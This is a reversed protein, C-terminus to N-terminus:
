LPPSVLSHLILCVRDRVSVTYAGYVRVGHRAHVTKHREPYDRRARGDPDAVPGANSYSINLKPKM